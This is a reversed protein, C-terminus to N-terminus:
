EEIIKGDKKPLIKIIWGIFIDESDFKIDSTSKEYDVDTLIETYRNDSSGMKIKREVKILLNYLKRWNKSTSDSGLHSKPSDPDKNNRLLTFLEKFDYDQHYSPIKIDKFSIKSGSYNVNILGTPIIRVILKSDM